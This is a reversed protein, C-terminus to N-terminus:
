ARSLRYNFIRREDALCSQLYPKMMHPKLSFADDGVFVHPIEETGFPLCKPPPLCLDGNNIAKSLNCKSWVVGDSVRGNTGIDAYICEYDPGAVALQVIYHTHKYNFFHSGAEPPPQMVIHKGDIAGICNPFQWREEFKSSIELWEEASSPLKLYVHSMNKIVANCVETIIYSIAGRSIRFQFSLSRFTEGTALFRITVTLRAKACIVKNGGLITNPTMDQEILQFIELFEEHSMRMMEKFATTDEISLERVLNDFYGQKERRKIWERTRGRKCSREEDEGVLELIILAGAAKRKRAIAFNAMNRISTKHGSHCVKETKSVLGLGRKEDFAFDAGHGQWSFM